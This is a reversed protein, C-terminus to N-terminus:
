RKKVVDRSVICDTNGGVLEEEVRDTKEEEKKNARVCRGGGRKMACETWKTQQVYKGKCTKGQERCGKM